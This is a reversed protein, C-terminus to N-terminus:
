NVQRHCKSELDPKILMDLEQTEMPTQKHQEVINVHGATNIVLFIIAVVAVIVLSNSTQQRKKIVM